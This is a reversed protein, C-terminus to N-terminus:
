RGRSKGRGVKRVASRKGPNKASPIPYLQEASAFFEDSGVLQDDGSEVAERRAAVLRALGEDELMEELLAMLSLNILGAVPKGDSLLYIRADKTAAVTQKANTKLDGMTAIGVGAQKIVFM